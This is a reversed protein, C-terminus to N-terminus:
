GQQQSMEEMYQAYVGTRCWEVWQGLKTQMDTEQASWLRGSVIGQYEGIGGTEPIAPLLRPSSLSGQHQM